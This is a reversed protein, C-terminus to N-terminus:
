ELQHEDKLRVQSLDISYFHEDSITKTKVVMKKLEEDYIESVVPQPDFPVGKILIVFRRDM